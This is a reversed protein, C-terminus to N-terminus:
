KYVGANRVPHDLASLSKETHAATVSQLKLIVTSQTATFTSAISKVPSVSISSTAAVIWVANLAAVLQSSVTTHLVSWKTIVLASSLTVLAIVTVVVDVPVTPVSIDPAPALSQISQSVPFPVTVFATAVGDSCSFKAINNSLAPLISLSKM